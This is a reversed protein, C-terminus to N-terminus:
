VTPAPRRHTNVIFGTSTTVAPNGLTLTSGTNNVLTITTAASAVGVAQNGFSVTSPSLIVNSTGTGSVGAIQPSSPDSDNIIVAGEKAGTSKPAFAVGIACSAGGALTKGSAPCNNSKLVFDKTENLTIAGMTISSTGNNKVTITKTASSSGVLQAGFNIPAGTVTIASGIGSLNVTSSGNFFGNDNITLTGVRIGSGTPSFYVYVTCSQGSPLSSPCDDSESFDGSTQINAITLPGLSTLTVVQPNSTSGVSTLPFVLNSNSLNLAAFASVGRIRFDSQDAILYNGSNDVFVGTPNCLGSATAVVGDGSFGCARDGAITTMNGSSDVWRVLQNGTDAIFMDGSHDVAVGSPSSIDVQTAPGDGTWGCAGTGGVTNIVGTLASVERVRCNSTDAIFVNGRGDVAVGQPNCIKANVALGGDGGYACQGGIGAITNITGNIVERIVHNSMDAIYVNDNTDVYVGTPNCLFASTAPGGDGEFRCNGPIGAFTSIKNSTDVKRIVQNSEDAIYINGKSDRAVMRPNNLQAKTAPGGDGSFGATGNGAFFDVLDTSNVLERVMQNSTDGVFINSSSDEFVGWPNNLVVGSPAIGSLLTPVTPSGNGAVTSINGSVTFERVRDNSLDAILFKTVGTVAAVGQPNFLEASTASGGDGSFGATGNGAVTKIDGGVTFQRMKQCNQDPYTVTKGDGSVALEVVTTINANIAPNGDGNCGSTGNGAVTNIKKNNITVERIRLNRTDAIFVDGATDVTVGDPGNLEASLAPGNDGSFGCTGDGAYTNIINTKLAVKRVRCNNMDAIYLNAATSDLAVQVPFNLQAVTGKGGDGSFGCVHNGVITTITNTTDVKRVVCNNYDSFYVNGTGDVTLGQPGNILAQPAGGKVGDGAYGPIGQGVFVTLTGHTDVKFIRNQAFASVYFNGSGDVAVADPQNLNADVAPYDNPGGGIVTSIIDQQALAPLCLLMATLLFAFVQIFRRM